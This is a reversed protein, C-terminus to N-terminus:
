TRRAMEIKDYRGLELDDPYFFQVDVVRGNWKPKQSNGTFHAQYKETVRLSTKGRVHPIIVAVDLDSDPRATGRAESGVIFAGLIKRRM